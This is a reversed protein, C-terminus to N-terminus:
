VAVVHACFAEFPSKRQSLAGAPPTGQKSLSLFVSVCPAPNESQWAPLIVSLYKATHRMAM